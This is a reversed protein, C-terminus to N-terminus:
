PTFVVKGFLSGEAMAAFGDRADSLMMSAAIAPRVGTRECFRLLQELDERTGMTVGAIRLRALFIRSIVMETPDGSTAGAVVITGCPRVAKVSHSWTAAGVTELVADVRDPLRAGPEFTADAGLELALARKAETRSTAWVRMGAASALAILATSVGGGAGQVLVTSGSSAGSEVFLMRYATLWATPMCAAQEFTMGAPKAVLNEVPVAVRQAFTGDHRESLLSGDPLVAHLVVENGDADVGAGDCGLVRPYEQRGATVGRLTWLDHHNLGAARVDVVAWGEPAVPDPHEGIEIAGIPDAADARTATLALM